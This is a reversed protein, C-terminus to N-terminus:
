QLTSPHMRCLEKPCGLRVSCEYTRDSRSRILNLIIVVEGGSAREDVLGCPVGGPRFPPRHRRLLRNGIRQLIPGVLLARGAGVSIKRCVNTEEGNRVVGNTLRRVTPKGM